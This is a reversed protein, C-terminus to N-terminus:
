IRSFARFNLCENKEKTKRLDLFAFLFLKTEERKNYNKNM